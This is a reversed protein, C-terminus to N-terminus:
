IKLKLVKTKVKCFKTRRQTHRYKISKKWCTFIMQGVCFFLTSCSSSPCNTTRDVRFPVKHLVGTIEMSRDVKEEYDLFNIYLAPCWEVCPRHVAQTGALLVYLTTYISNIEKVTSIYLNCIVDLFIKVVTHVQIFNVNKPPSYWQGVCFFRKVPSYWYIYLWQGHSRFM